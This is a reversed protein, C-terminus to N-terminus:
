QFRQRKKKPPKDNVIFESISEEDNDSVEAQDDIFLSASQERTRKPMITSILSKPLPRVQSVLLKTALFRKVMVVVETIYPFPRYSV